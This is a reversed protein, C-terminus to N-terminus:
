QIMMEDSTRVTMVEKNLKLSAKNLFQTKIHKFMTILEVKVPSINKVISHRTPSVEKMAEKLKLHHKMIAKKLLTLQVSMVSNKM